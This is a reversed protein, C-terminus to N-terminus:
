IIFPKIVFNIIDRPLGLDGHPQNQPGPLRCDIPKLKFNRIITVMKTSIGPYRAHNTMSQFITEPNQRPHTSDILSPQYKLMAQVLGYNNLGVSAFFNSPLIDEHKPLLHTIKQFIPLNNFEFSRNLLNTWGNHLDPELGLDLLRLMIHPTSMCILIDPNNINANHDILCKIVPFPSHRLLSSVFADDIEKQSIKRRKFEQQFFRVPYKDYVMKKLISLSLYYEQQKSLLDSAFM